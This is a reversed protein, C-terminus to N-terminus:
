CVSPPVSLCQPRGVYRDVWLYRYGLSLTTEIADEVTKPIIERTKTSNVKGGQQGWVYSLAAYRCAPPAPVLRRLECDIVRLGNLGDTPRPRCQHDHEEICVDLWSKLLAVNVGAPYLTQGPDLLPNKEVTVPWPFAHRSFAKELVEQTLQSTPQCALVFGFGHSSPPPLWKHEVELLVSPFDLGLGAASWCTIKFRRGHKNSVEYKLVEAFFQCIRCETQQDVKSRHLVEEGSFSREPAFLTDWPIKSCKYCIRHSRKIDNNACSGMALLANVAEM